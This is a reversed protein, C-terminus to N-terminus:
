KETEKIRWREDVLPQNTQPVLGLIRIGFQVVRQEIGDKGQEMYFGGPETPPQTHKVNILFADGVAEHGIRLTDRRLLPTFDQMLKRCDFCSADHIHLFFHAVRLTDAKLLSHQLAKADSMKKLRGAM